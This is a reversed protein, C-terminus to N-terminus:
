PCIWRERKLPVKEKQSFAECIELADSDSRITFVTGEPLSIGNFDPLEECLVEPEIAVATNAHFRDPNDTLIISSVKGVLDADLKAAKEYNLMGETKGSFDARYYYLEALVRGDGNKDDAIRGIREKLESRVEESIWDMTIVM